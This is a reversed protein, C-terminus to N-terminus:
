SKELLKRFTHKGKIFLEGVEEPGPETGDEKILKVSNFLMTKGVSGRKEQVKSPDMYFNNPGAETLGYGEKFSLGKRMFEEYIELPCPAGGSLFTKVTPFSQKKFEDTNVMMHYMTPVMLVITCKYTNLYAIAETPNFTSALVVKGGIMLLPISLANLGGTHFLPMYTLTTDEKTLNWSLITNLGNWMISQHSLVVGKPKGTTGGTYLIALPDRESIELEANLSIEQDLYEEDDIKFSLSEFFPLENIKETFSSHYGMVKPTCDQLIYDIEDAALRWNIPVFISGLKMCAFLLDFYCIHNPALLAVRDGKNVGQKRLWSAAAESRKNLESYTWSRVQEIDVIAEADPTLRARSGVWDLELMLSIEGKKDM